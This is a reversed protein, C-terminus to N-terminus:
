VIGIARWTGESFSHGAMGEDKTRPSQHLSKIRGRCCGAVVAEGNRESLRSQDREHRGHGVQAFPDKRSPDAVRVLRAKRSPDVPATVTVGKTEANKEVHHLDKNSSIPAGM